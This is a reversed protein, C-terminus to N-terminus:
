KQKKGVFKGCSLNRVRELTDTRLHHYIRSIVMPSAGTIKSVDTESIGAALMDTIARHRLDHFRCSVKADERCHDWATQHKSVPKSKTGNGPFVFISEKEEFRKKFEPLLDNPIPVFRKRKTKTHEAYLTIWGGKLDVRDWSLQLIENLRMGVKAALQIQFRLNETPSHEILREIEEDTVYRGAETASDPKRLVSYKIPWDKKRGLNLIFTLIERDHKLKRKPNKARQDIIYKDWTTGDWQDIFTCNADFWPRLHKCTDQYSKLTKWSKTSKIREGEDFLESFPRRTGKPKNNLWEAIIADKMSRAAKISKEGTSHWLPAKGKKSKRIIYIGSNTDIYIGPEVPKIM